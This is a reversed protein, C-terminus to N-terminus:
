REKIKSIIQLLQEDCNKCKEIAIKGNAFRVKIEGGNDLEFTIYDRHTIVTKRHKQKPNYAILANEVTRIASENSKVKINSM